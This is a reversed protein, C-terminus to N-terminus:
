QVNHDDEQHDERQAPGDQAGLSAVPSLCHAGVHADRPDGGDQPSLQAGGCDVGCQEGGDDHHLQLVHRSILILSCIMKGSQRALKWHWFSFWDVLTSSWPIVHCYKSTWSIRLSGRNPTGLQKRKPISFLPLMEFLLSYRAFSKDHMTSLVLKLNTLSIEFLKDGM